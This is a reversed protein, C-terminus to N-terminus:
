SLAALSQLFAFARCSLIFSFPTFAIESTISSSGRSSLTMITSTDSKSSLPSVPTTAILIASCYLLGQIRSCFCKSLFVLIVTNPPLALFISLLGISLKLSRTLEVPITLPLPWALAKPITFKGISSLSFAILIIFLIRLSVSYSEVYQTSKIKSISCIVIENIILNDCNSSIIHWPILSGISAISFIDNVLSQKSTNPLFSSVILKITFSILYIWNLHLFPLWNYSKKCFAQSSLSLM